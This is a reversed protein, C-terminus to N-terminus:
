KQHTNHSDTRRAFERLRELFKDDELHFIHSIRAGDDKYGPEDAINILLQGLRLDPYTYWISRLENLVGEIRKPDRM